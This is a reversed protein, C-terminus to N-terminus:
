RDLFRMVLGSYLKPYFSTSKPPFVEGARVTNVFENNTVARLELAVVPGGAAVSKRASSLDRVYELREKGEISDLFRDHLFSVLSLTSDASGPQFTLATGEENGPSYIILDSGDAEAPAFARAVKGTWSAADDASSFHVVRHYPQLMLATEAHDLSGLAALCYRAGPVEPHDRRYKQATQFRHHGDAIIVERRAIVADIEASIDGALEYLSHTEGAAVEGQFRQRGKGRQLLPFLTGGDRCALLIMGINAQTHALAKYRIEKVRPLTKEHFLVRDQELDVAGVVAWLRHQGGQFLYDVEYLFLGPTRDVTLIDRELLERLAEGAHSFDGDAGPREGLTFRIINGPSKELLAAHKEPSVIDYPPAINDEVNDLTENYLVAPFPNLLSM